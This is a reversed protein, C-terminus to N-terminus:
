ISSAASSCASSRASRYACAASNGKAPTSATETRRSPSCNIKPSLVISPVPSIATFPAFTHFKLFNIRVHRCFVFRQRAHLGLVRRVNRNTQLYQRALQIRHQARRFRQLQIAKWLRRRALRKVMGKDGQVRSVASLMVPQIAGDLLTGLAYPYKKGQSVYGLESTTFVKGILLDSLGQYAQELMGSALLKWGFRFFQAARAPHFVFRPKWPVQFALVACKVGQQVLQQIVLAWIGAGALAAAIGATGSVLGASVTARFTKQFELNRAVIAEQISNYANVVLVLVLVRLPTIVHPMGYFAAIAPATFFLAAYLVCSMSLSMWFVTSYDDEDADPAQIIATNLGSQVIVNGINVFVLMIALAGFDDPSLLRAMVIQVVLTVVATGGQEFLKWFLSRITTTKLDDTALAHEWFM